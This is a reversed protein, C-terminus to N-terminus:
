PSEELRMRVVPIQDWLDSALTGADGIRSRLEDGAAGHIWVGARAASWPQLGQALLAAIIGTLVDGTGAVGLNPGGTANVALEGSPEAVVTHSGKLVVTVGWIRSATEAASFRDAQVSRVDTHLLRAMEGPHPTVVLKEPVHDWWRDWGAVANLGDADLVAALDLDKISDLLRRVFEVTEAHTGLGPGIAASSARHLSTELGSLAGPAFWDGKEACAFISEPGRAAVVARIGDPVALEVLGAGM